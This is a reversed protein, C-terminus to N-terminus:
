QTRAFLSFMKTFEISITLPTPQSYCSHKPMGVVPFAVPLETNFRGPTNYFSIEKQRQSDVLRSINHNVDTQTL